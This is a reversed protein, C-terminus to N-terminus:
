IIYIFLSVIFDFKKRVHKLGSNEVLGYFETWNPSTILILVIASFKKVESGIRNSM